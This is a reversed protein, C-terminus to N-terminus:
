SENIPIPYARAMKARSKEATFMWKIRDGKQKPTAGM